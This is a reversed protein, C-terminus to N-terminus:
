PGLDIRQTSVATFDLAQHTAVVAMGGNGLHDNLLAHVLAAAASDLASFPEDLLWLVTGCVMLRALALRRKQGQSLLRAPLTERGDLGLHQLVAYAKKEGIEVGAIGSAMRLNEVPSLEEKVANSHGIYTVSRLYDEGLSRIDSGNWLIAGQVPTIFGCLMRLLSSKGSGNPGFVQLIGGPHLAFGIDKFLSRSGRVCELDKAELM